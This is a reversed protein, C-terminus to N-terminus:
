KIILRWDIMYREIAVRMEKSSRYLLQNRPINWPMNQKPRLKPIRFNVAGQSIQNHQTM